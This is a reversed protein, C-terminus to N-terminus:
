QLEVSGGAAELKSKAEGATEKNAGELVPKPAGEVLDKAEKLGLTPVIERVAKIVAIKNAGAATLVVNFSTQEEAPGESASAGAANSASMMMPASASVGFREELAHVLESLELVSLTEISEIIKELNKSVSKTAKKPEEAKAESKVEEVVAEAANSAPTEEPQTTEGEAESPVPEVATEEQVEVNEEDAM